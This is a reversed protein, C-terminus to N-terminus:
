QMLNITCLHVADYCLLKMCILQSVIAGSAMSDILLTNHAKHNKKKAKRKLCALTIHQTNARSESKHRALKHDKCYIDERKRNNNCINTIKREKKVQIQLQIKHLVTDIDSLQMISLEDM